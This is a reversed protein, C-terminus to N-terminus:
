YKQNVPEDVSTPSTVNEQIPLSRYTRVACTSHYRFSNDYRVSMKDLESLDRTLSTGPGSTPACRRSCLGFRLQFERKFKENYIGYIFPNYCSNSMALWDCCFWIINIYRYGNIEPFIDQLVNYTQLPLWCLAFLAVVIVLMKIVKKKNKMLTADRTTQANGPTKSGWLTLAMRIYVCSIICLPTLYQLVLLVVRYSLMADDSLTVNHCFPKYRGRTYEILTVRLAVAMPAALAGSVLWICAIVIKACLKSPSASLPNLIARHRDVAIATLTFVSVNVSLVQVFPCFACM